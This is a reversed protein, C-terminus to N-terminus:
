DELGTIRAAQGPEMNAQILSSYAKARGQVDAAHLRTFSLALSPLELKDRLETAVIEALPVVSLHLFQRLAERLATGAASGPAAM